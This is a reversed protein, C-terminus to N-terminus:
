SRPVEGSAATGPGAKELVLLLEDHPRRASLQEWRRECTFGEYGPWQRAFVALRACALRRLRLVLRVLGGSRAIRDTLRAVHMRAWAHWHSPYHHDAPVVDRSEILVLGLARWYDAPYTQPLFQYHQDRGSWGWFEGTARFSRSAGNPTLVYLRGHDTLLSAVSRAFASCEQLHEMVHFCFVDDYRRGAPVDALTAFVDGSPGQERMATRCAVSPEVVDVSTGTRAALARAFFGHGAGIELSRGAPRGGAARDMKALYDAALRRGKELEQPDMRFYDQEYHARVAEEPFPPSVRCASCRECRHLTSVNRGLRVEYLPGCEGGCFECRVAAPTAPPHPVTTHHTATTM